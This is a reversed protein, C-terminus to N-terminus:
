AEFFNPIEKVVLHYIGNTPIIIVLTNNSIICGYTKPIKKADAKGTLIKTEIIKTAGKPKKRPIGKGRPIKAVSFCGSPAIAQAQPIFPSKVTTPPKKLTTKERCNPNRSVSIKAILM